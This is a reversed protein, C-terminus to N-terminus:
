GLVIFFRECHRLKEVNRLLGSRFFGISVGIRLLRMFFGM